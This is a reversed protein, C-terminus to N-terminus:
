DNANECFMEYTSNPSNHTVQFIKYELYHLLNVRKDIIYELDKDYCTIIIKEAESRMTALFHERSITFCTKTADKRGFVIGIKSDSVDLISELKNTYDNNPKDKENKCEIIFCPSLRNFVSLYTTNIGCLFTCDFQNTRTKIDNTGKVYKIQNFIDLILVELAKGQETTNKGYDLDLKKRLNDFRVYASESPHYYLRYLDMTNNQLSDAKCFFSDSKRIGLIDGYKILTENVEKQSTTSKKIRKFVLFIDSSNFDGYDNDECEFCVPRKELKELLEEEDCFFLIEGCKPCIVVYRQKLIEKDKYYMLIQKALEFPISMKEAVFSVTIRDIIDGVLTGLLHDFDEIMQPNNEYWLNNYSEQYFM